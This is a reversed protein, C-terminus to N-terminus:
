YEELLTKITAFTEMICVIAERHDKTFEQTITFGATITDVTTKLPMNESGSFLQVSTSHQMLVGLPISTLTNTGEFWEQRELPLSNIYAKFEDSHMFIYIAAICIHHFFMTCETPQSSLLEDGVLSLAHVRTSTTIQMIIGLAVL